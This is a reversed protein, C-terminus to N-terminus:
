SRAGLRVRQRFPCCLLLSITCIRKFTGCRAVIMALAARAITTAPTMAEAGVGSTPALPGGLVGDETFMAATREAERRDYALNQRAFLDRIAERDELTLTM